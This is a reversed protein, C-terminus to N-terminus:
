IREYCDGGLHMGGPAITADSRTVAFHASYRSGIEKQLVDPSSHLAGATLAVPQGFSPEISPSWSIWAHYVILLGPKAQTGLAALQDSTTHTKAGFSRRGAPLKNDM